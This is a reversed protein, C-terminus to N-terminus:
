WPHYKGECSIKATIAIMIMTKTTLSTKRPNLAALSLGFVSRLRPGGFTCGKVNFIVKVNIMRYDVESLVTFLVMKKIVLIQLIFHVFCILLLVTDISM